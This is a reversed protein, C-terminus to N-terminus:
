AAARRTAREMYTRIREAVFPRHASNFAFEFALGAYLNQESDLHTHVLRAAVGVPAPVAPRLDLRLWYLKTGEFGHTEGRPVVLGAGGGGINALTATFHPGAGAFLLEGGVTLGSNEADLARNAAEAAAIASLDRVQWCEVRLPHISASSVRLSNRRQCREVNEPLDIRLAPGSRSAALFARSRFMWRNQGVAIVCAIPAGDAVPIPSGLATPMEVLMSTDALHLVRVRWILQGAGEESGEDGVLAFEIGGGREAIGRLSERWRETRSRNAPM